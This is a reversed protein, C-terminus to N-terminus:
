RWCGLVWHKVPQIDKRDGLSCHSLVSPFLIVNWPNAGELEHPRRGVKNKVMLPEQNGRPLSTLGRILGRIGTGGGVDM